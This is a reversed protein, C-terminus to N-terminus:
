KPQKERLKALAQLYPRAARNPPFFPFTHSYIWVYGDSAQVAAGVTRQFQSPTFFDPRERYDLWIGFGARVHRRFKEPLRSLRQADVLMTTRAKRFEAPERYAYSFEFGDVLQAAEPM